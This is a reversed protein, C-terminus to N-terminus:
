TCPLFSIISPLKAVTTNALVLVKGSGTTLTIVKHGACRVPNKADFLEVFVASGPSVLTPMDVAKYSPQPDGFGFFKRLGPCNLRLNSIAETSKYLQSKRFNIPISTSGEAIQLIDDDQLARPKSLTV